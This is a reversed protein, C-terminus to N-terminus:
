GRVAEISVRAIAAPVSQHRTQSQQIIRRGQETAAGGDWPGPDQQGQRGENGTPDELTSLFDVAADAGGEITQAGTQEGQQEHRQPADFTGFPELFM